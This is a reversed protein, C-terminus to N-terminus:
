LRRRYFFVKRKDLKSRKHRGRAAVCESWEFASRFCGHVQILKELRSWYILSREADFRLVASMLRLIFQECRCWLNSESASAASLVRFIFTLEDPHHACNLMERLRFIVRSNAESSPQCARLFPLSLFAVTSRAFVRRPIANLHNRFLNERRAVKYRASFL